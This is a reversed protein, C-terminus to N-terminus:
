NMIIPVSAVLCLPAKNSVGLGFAEMDLDEALMGEPLKWDFRFVLNALALELLATAFNIGPCVRRGTGFPLLEYHMGKFDVESDVFREPWFEEPNKWHEPDTSIAPVNLLVRTKAPIHYKNGITCSDTTERIILAFPPHLRLTEKIVQKLYALKPLDTEDVQAKGKAVRRVEQEVMQKVSPHRILEAMTYAITTSSTDIAAIFIDQHLLYIM